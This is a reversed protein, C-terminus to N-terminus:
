DYSRSSVSASAAEAGSDIFLHVFHVIPKLVNFLNRGTDRFGKFTESQKEIIAIVEDASDPRTPLGVVLPHGSLKRGTKAQYRRLAENYVEGFNRLNANQSSSVPRSTLSTQTSMLTSSPYHSSPLPLPVLAM